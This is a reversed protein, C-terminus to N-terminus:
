KTVFVDSSDSRDPYSQAYIEGSNRNVRGNMVHRESKNYIKLVIYYSM